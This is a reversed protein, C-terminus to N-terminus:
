IIPHEAGFIPEFSVADSRSAPSRRVPLPSCQGHVTGEGRGEGGSPSLTAPKDATAKAFASPRTLPRNMAWSVDLNQLHEREMFWVRTPVDRQSTGARAMAPPVTAGSFAARVACRATGVLNMTGMFNRANLGVGVGPLAAPQPFDKSAGSGYGGVHTPALGKGRFCM